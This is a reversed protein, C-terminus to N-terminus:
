IGDLERLICQHEVLRTPSIIMQMRNKPRARKAIPVFIGPIFNGFITTYRALNDEKGLIGSFATGNTM